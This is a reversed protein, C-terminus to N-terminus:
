PKKVLKHCIPSLKKTTIILFGDVKIAWTQSNFIYSMIDIQTNSLRYKEQFILDKVLIQTRKPMASM